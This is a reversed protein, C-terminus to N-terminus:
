FGSDVLHRAVQEYFDASGGNYPASERYGPGSILTDDNRGSLYMHHYGRGFLRGKLTAVHSMNPYDLLDLRQSKVTAYGDNEGLTGWILFFNAAELNGWVNFDWNRIKTAWSFYQVGNDRENSANVLVSWENKDGVFDILESWSQQFSMNEFAYGQMYKRSLNTLSHVYHRYIDLEDLNSEGVDPTEMLDYTNGQKWLGAQVEQKLAGWALDNGYDAWGNGAVVNSLYIVDLLLSAGMTGRNEGVLGVFAAVKDRMLGQSPDNDSVPLRAIMYRSDQSGQSMGFINVKSAGTEELAQLVTNRLSRARAANSAYPPKDAIYVPVGCHEELRAVIDASFYRHYANLDRTLESNHVNYNRPPLDREEAPVEWRACSQGGQGDGVSEACLHSSERKECDKGDINDPCIKRLSWHHSLVIPYKTKCSLDEAAFTTNLTTLTTLLSLLLALSKSRM